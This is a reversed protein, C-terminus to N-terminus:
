HAELGCHRVIFDAIAEANNLDLVPLDSGTVDGDSALAVVNEHEPALMPKGLAPRYIEIKQHPNRKFGEVLLLDVPSMRAVIDDLEPEPGDRLEHMLAWRYSSSIMVETAGAERHRYSDKGPKDVDFAHHAHKCTSVRLGRDVLLPLLKIMLTTKGSGSWGVLGLVKM